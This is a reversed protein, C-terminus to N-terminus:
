RLYLQIFNLITTETQRLPIWSSYYFIVTYTDGLIECAGVSGFPNLDWSASQIGLTM